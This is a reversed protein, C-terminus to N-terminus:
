KKEKEIRKKKKKKKIMNMVVIFVVITQAHKVFIKMMIEPDCEFRLM